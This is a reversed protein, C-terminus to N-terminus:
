EFFHDTEEWYEFSHMNLAHLFARAFVATFTNTKSLFVTVDTITILSSVNTHAEIIKNGIRIIRAWKLTVLFPYFQPQTKLYIQNRLKTTGVQAM